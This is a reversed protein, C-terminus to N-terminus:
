GLGPGLGLLRLGSGVEARVEPRARDRLKVRVVLGGRGRGWGKGM